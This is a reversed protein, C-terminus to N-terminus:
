VKIIKLLRCWCVKLFSIIHRNLHGRVKVLNVKNAEYIAAVFIFCLMNGHYVTPIESFLRNHLTTIRFFLRKLKVFTWVSTSKSEGHVYGSEEDM